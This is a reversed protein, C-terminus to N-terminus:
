ADEVMVSPMTFKKNEISTVRVGSDVQDLVWQMAMRLLKPEKRRGIFREVAPRGHDFYMFTKDGLSVRMREQHTEIKRIVISM